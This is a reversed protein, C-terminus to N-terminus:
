EEPWVPTIASLQEETAAAEALDFLRNEEAICRGVFDTITDRVAVPYVGLSASQQVTLPYRALIHNTCATKNAQQMEARAAALRKAPWDAAQTYKGNQLIYRAPQDRYWADERETYGSHGVAAEVESVTFGLRFIPANADEILENNDVIFRGELLNHWQQRWDDRGQERVYEYDYRSNLM